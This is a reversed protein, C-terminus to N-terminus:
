GGGKKEQEKILWDRWRKVAMTRKPLSSYCRYGLDKGTIRRLAGIAFLRVDADTDDLCEVLLPMVTKDRSRGARICAASRESGLEAQLGTAIDKDADNCGTSLVVVFLSAFAINRCIGAM